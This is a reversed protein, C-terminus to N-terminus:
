NYADVSMDLTIVTYVNLSNGCIESNFTQIAYRIISLLYFFINFAVTIFEFIFLM